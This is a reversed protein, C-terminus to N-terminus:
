CVEFNAKEDKKRRKAEKEISLNGVHDNHLHREFTLFTFLTRRGSMKPTILVMMQMANANRTNNASNYLCPMPASLMMVVM